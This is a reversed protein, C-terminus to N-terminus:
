GIQGQFYVDAVAGSSGTDELVVRLYRAFLDAALEVSGGDAITRLSSSPIYRLGDASVELHVAIADPGNNGVAVTMMGALSVDQTHETRGGAPVSLSVHRNIFTPAITVFPLAHDVSLRPWGDTDLSNVTAAQFYTGPSPYGRAAILVGYEAYRGSLWGQALPTVDVQLPGIAPSAFSTEPVPEYLPLTDWTVSKASWRSKVRLVEYVVPAAPQLSSIVSLMLSAGTIVSGAPLASRLSFTLLMYGLSGNTDRGASMHGSQGYNRDPHFQYVFSDGNATLYSIPM